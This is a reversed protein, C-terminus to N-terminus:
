VMKRGRCRSAGMSETGNGFNGLALALKIMPFGYPPDLAKVLGVMMLM